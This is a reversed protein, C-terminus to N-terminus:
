VDVVADVVVDVVEVEVGVVVGVVEVEVLVVEVVEVVVVVEGDVVVEVVIVVNGAVEVVVAQELAFSRLVQLTCRRAACVTTMGTSSPATTEIRGSIAAPAPPNIRKPLEAGVSRPSLSCLKSAEAGPPMTGRTIASSSPPTTCLSAFRTPESGEALCIPAVMVGAWIRRSAVPIAARILATPTVISRAGTRSTSPPWPGLM